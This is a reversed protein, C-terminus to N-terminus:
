FRFMVGVEPAWGAAKKTLGVASNLKLKINPTFFLQAETILEIEDESGEIGGYLRLWDKMGRVWEVAYEGLEPKGEAWAVAGRLTTTGWSRSRMLGMGYKFEWSPTGILLKSKQAPFVTELYSFIEGRQETEARWRYRIQGEVDGLGSQELGGAPFNGPDAASKEQRASIGAAELEVHLRDSIGYALFILYESARYRGFYDEDGVFGLESPQYEATNDWYYEFFPYVVFDGPEIYTAFMSAPIGNGGTDRTRYAAVQADVPPAVLAALCALMGWALPRQAALFSKM